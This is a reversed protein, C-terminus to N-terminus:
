VAVKVVVKHFEGEGVGPAHADEPFFIVFDGPCVTIWASSDDNFLEADKKSDYAGESNKCLKHNKWGMDECGSVVYQIDIYKRHIELKAESRPKCTGRIVIAYVDDGDIDHRGDSLKNLGKQRLFAFAKAFHPNLSAYFDAQEIRDLIM